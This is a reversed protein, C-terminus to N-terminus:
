VVRGVFHFQGDTFEGECPEPVDLQFTLSMSQGQTLFSGEERHNIIRCMDEIDGSHSPLPTYEDVDADCINDGLGPFNNDNEGSDLSGKTAYYNFSTYPIGNGDGCVAPKPGGAVLGDPDTFYDDSAIYMDMVVGDSGVNELFVSNSTVSEGPEVAGFSISGALNISLPPNFVVRDTWTSTDSLGDEDFAMINIDTSGSWGSQVVLKCMYLQEEDASYDDLDCDFSDSDYEDELPVCSGATYGNVRLVVEEINDEGDEDAVVVYYSLTEGTFVYDGRADLEYFEYGYDNIDYDGYIDAIKITQDNPFWSRQTSDTCVEPVHENGVSVSVDGSVDDGEAIVSPAFSLLLLTATILTLIRKM